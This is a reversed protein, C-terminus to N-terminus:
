VSTSKAKGHFQPLLSMASRLAQIANRVLRDAAQANRLRMIGSIEQFTLDEEVRLLLALRQERSLSCMARALAAEREHTDALAEPSPCPDSLEPSDAEDLSLCDKLALRPIEPGARSSSPEGKAVRGFQKRRWDRCLNRAVAHLWTTFSAPGQPDFKRLRRCNDRHLQECLFVFADARDEEESECYSVVRAMVHAYADLFERWARQWDGHHLEHLLAVAFKDNTRPAVADWIPHRV